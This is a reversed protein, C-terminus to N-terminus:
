LVTLFSEREGRRLFSVLMLKPIEELMWFNWKLGVVVEDIMKPKSYYDKVISDDDFNEIKREKM